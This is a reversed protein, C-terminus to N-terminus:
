STRGGCSAPSWEMEGSAEGEGRARAVEGHYADQGQSNSAPARGLESILEAGTSEGERRGKERMLVAKGGRVKHAGGRAKSHAPLARGRARRAATDGHAGALERGLEELAWEQRM